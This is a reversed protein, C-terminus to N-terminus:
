KCPMATYPAFWPQYLMDTVAWANCPQDNSSGCFNGVICSEGCINSEDRPSVTCNTSTNVAFCTRWQYAASFMTAGCAPVSGVWGNPTSIPPTLQCSTTSISAVCNLTPWKDNPDGDGDSDVCDYNFDNATGLIPTQFYQTQNPHVQANADNCDLPGSVCNGPSSIAEPYYGDGDFDLISGCYGSQCGSNNICASGIPQPGASLLICECSTTCSPYFIPNCPLYPTYGTPCGCDCTSTGSFCSSTVIIPQPTPTPVGGGGPGSVVGINGINIGFFYNILQIFVYIILLVFIGIFGNVIKSRAAEIRYKDGAATIWSIGGYLIIAFFVVIGLVFVINVLNSVIYQVFQWGTFNAIVGGIQPNGVRQSILQSILSPFGPM